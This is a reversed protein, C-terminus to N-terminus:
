PTAEFGHQDCLGCDGRMRPRLCAAPARGGEGGRAQVLADLIKGEQQVFVTRKDPTVNVDCAGPPLAFHLFALPKTAV